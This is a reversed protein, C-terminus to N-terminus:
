STVETWKLTFGSGEKHASRNVACVYNRSLCAVQWQARKKKKSVFNQHILDHAAFAMNTGNIKIQHLRDNPRLIRTQEVFSSLRGGGGGGGGM